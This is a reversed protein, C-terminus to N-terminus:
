VQNIKMVPKQLVLNNPYSVIHHDDNEIQISFMTMDLIKGEISNDGDVIRIRDGIKYPFSFMLIANATLNSLISWSAFLGVGVIAFISSALILMAKLDIGWIVAISIALFVLMLMGITKKIYVLRHEIFERTGIFRNLASNAVAVCIVYVVLAVITLIIQISLQSDFYNMIYGM